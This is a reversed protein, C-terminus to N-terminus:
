TEFKLSGSRTALNCSSATVVTNPPRSSMSESASAAPRPGPAEGRSGRLAIPWVPMAPPRALSSIFTLPTATPSVRTSKVTTSLGTRTRTPRRCARAPRCIWGIPKQYAEQAQLLVGHDPTGGGPEGPQIVPRARRATVSPQWQAPLRNGRRRRFLAWGQCMVPRPPAYCPNFGRGSPRSKRRWPAAPHVIPSPSRSSGEM